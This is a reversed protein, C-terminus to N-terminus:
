VQTRRGFMSLLWHRFSGGIRQHRFFVALLAPRPQVPPNEPKRKPGHMVANPEPPDDCFSPDMKRGDPLRQASEIRAFGYFTPEEMKYVDGMVIKEPVDGFAIPPIGPIPMAEDAQIVSFGLTHFSTDNFSTRIKFEASPQFSKVKLRLKKTKKVIEKKRTTDRETPVQTEAAAPATVVAAALVLAQLRTVPDPHPRMVRDLQGQAFRACHPLTKSHVLDILEEDSTRSLDPVVTDCKGCYRGPKGAKSGPDPLMANWDEQCPDPVQIRFDM